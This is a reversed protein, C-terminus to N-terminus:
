PGGIDLFDLQIGSSGGPDTAFNFPPTTRIRLIESIGDAIAYYRFDPIGFLRKASDLAHNCLVALKTQTGLYSMSFCMAVLVLAMLNRLREYGLVRVDEIQYTQKAFRLTEEIRWRTLYAEVAWWLTERNKRLPITTLAMLPKQGFGKVVLMYLQEDRKPLKVKRFGFELTRVDESGDPNQKVLSHAYPLPCIEALDKALRLQGRYLLHRTGVMRVLFDLGRKLLPIFVKIRDGGRDIVWIGRGETQSSVADVCALIETNESEFDPAEQSWLRNVLPTVEAGGCEVGVVDCLWYGNALEGESGDRVRALYEMKEAYKKSLDSPDLILLTKEKIRHAGERIVFETLEKWLGERGAQRSLRDVTKLLPISECLSRAIETLHLSKRTQIGYLSELVFRWATKSVQLKGLFGEMQERIRLAVQSINMKHSGKQPTTKQRQRGSEVGPSARMEM